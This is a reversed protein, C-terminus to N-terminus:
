SHARGNEEVFSKPKEKKRLLLSAFMNMDIAAISFRLKPQFRDDFQGLIETQFASLKTFRSADDFLPFIFDDVGPFLVETTSTTLM